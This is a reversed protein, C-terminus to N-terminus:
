PAPVGGGKPTSGAAMASKPMVVQPMAALGPPGGAGAKALMAMAAAKPDAGPPPLGPLSLGGLMGPLGGGKAGPGGLGFSPMSAAVAAM